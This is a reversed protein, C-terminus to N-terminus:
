RPNPLWRAEAPQSAHTAARPARLQSALALGLFLWACIGLEGVHTSGMPLQVFTAIVIARDYPLTPVGGPVSRFLSVSLTALAGLFLSGVIVGMARWVEILGSDFVVRAQRDLRRSTGNIALGSGLVLNEPERLLTDYQQLREALSGDAELNTLTKARSYLAEKVDPMVAMSALLAGIVLLGALNKAVLGSPKTMVILLVALATAGWLTRYQCLALGLIMASIVPLAVAPKRRLAVVIGVLMIAGLSGPSNM